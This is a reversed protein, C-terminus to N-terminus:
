FCVGRCYRENVQKTFTHLMLLFSVGACVDFLQFMNKLISSLSEFTKVALLLVVHFLTKKMHLLVHVRYAICQFLVCLKLFNEKSLVFRYLFRGRKKPSSLSMM